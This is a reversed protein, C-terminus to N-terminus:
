IEEWAVDPAREGSDLFAAAIEAITSMPLCFRRPIPTATDGILFDQEGEEEPNSGLAMWYPPSDDSAGFQVCGDSSGLGLLLKRDNEGILEALFPIRQQSGQIVNRMTASDSLVKGNLPNTVDQRDFFQARM